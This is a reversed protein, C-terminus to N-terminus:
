EEKWSLLTMGIASGFPDIFFGVEDATLFDTRGISHQQLWHQGDCSVWTKRNTGDDGIRLWYLGAILGKSNSTSYAASFTTANTMKKNWFYFDAGAGGPAPGVAVVKGDSSQRFCLGCHSLGLAPADDHFRFCATITYPTAPAAKKRINLGYTGGNSDNSLHVGGNTTDITASDQNIWAFDGSVPATFPFIPGWPVLASGTDRYISFGNSPLLLRGAQAAAMNAVTNTPHLYQAAFDAPLTLFVDKTGASLNVAAGANSSALITTRALTTGSATYTGIGVEWETGGVITYFCTNGNGVVSFDRFGSAAGALTLTGTGTTTTTEKVRDYLLPGM